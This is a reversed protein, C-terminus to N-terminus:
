EDVIRDFEILVQDVKVQDGTKILIEKILVDSDAYIENQLKMAEIVILPEGERIIQNPQCKIDIVGGTIPAKLFKEFNDKKKKRSFGSLVGTDPLYVKVERVTNAFNIFHKHGHVENKVEILKGDIVVKFFQDGLKWDSTAHFIKGDVKISYGNKIVAVDLNHFENHDTEIFLKKPHIIPLFKSLRTKYFLREKKQIYSFVGFAIVIKNFFETFAQKDFIEPYNIKIFKTCVINKQFNKNSFISKLFSINTEVGEIEITNLAELMCNIASMRDKSHICIKLMLNDYRLGVESNKSIGTEIRTTCNARPLKYHTLHGSSPMFNLYPNEACIRIEIAHGILNVDEQTFDLKKGEAVRIMQEVIDIGTVLETIPHEVQIRTNMELFYFQKNEDMIFEVTGVSYYGVKKALRISEDYMKQRTKEDISVSPAEEIIKQNNRQVSCEREGLCVINGFKDGLVQVEIHRANSVFKEIFISDDEFSNKAETKASKFLDPIEDAKQAVRIGKGGGGASAKLVVPFGIENALTIAEDASKIPENYSELITVQANIAIKKSHIKDGMQSIVKPSPGIFIKGAKEVAEAFDSNEALFGYGPHVADAGCNKLVEIIQDINLYTGKLDSGLLPLAQDAQKVYLSNRDDETYIAYSKINLKKCAKIIRCAIEGRNAILISKIEV